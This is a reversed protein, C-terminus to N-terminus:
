CLFWGITSNIYRFGYTINGNTLTMDEALFMINSGNSAIVNTYLNNASSVWVIDGVNPTAPLTLTSQAVNTLTYHVNAIALQTTTTVVVLPISSSLASVVATGNNKQYGTCRWNGSGLSVFYATDGSTTTINAAGPLILSTANHTLTLAGSFQVLREVGAGITGLSTVTTTGSIIISNSTAAGIDVTSASAITATSPYNVVGGFQPATVGTTGNLQITM